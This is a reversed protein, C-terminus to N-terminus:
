KGLGKQILPSMHKLLRKSLNIQQNLVEPTLMTEKVKVKNHYSLTPFQHQFGRYVWHNDTEIYDYQNLFLHGYQAVYDIAYLIFEIVADSMSYHFTVRCWGYDAPVGHDSVIQKYISMQKRKCNRLLFHAFMSCCSVGGRSQIGFIDNLLAVIFNYHLGEIKFSYIPVQNMGPYPKPNILTLRRNGYLRPRVMHNIADERQTIYHIMEDKLQFALGAKICGLINPTGGTERQELNDSYRKIDASVFRVTGGGPCFPVDNKFLRHNAVLVGPSGPGGLFKHPSIFIADFYSSPGRHMDIAVYPACGAYDWFILGGYKDRRM